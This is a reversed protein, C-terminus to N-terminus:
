EGEVIIKLGDPKEYDIEGMGFGETWRKTVHELSIIKIDTSYKVKAYFEIAQVLEEETMTMTYQAKGFNM